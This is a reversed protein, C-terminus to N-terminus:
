WTVIKRVKRADLQAFIRDVSASEVALWHLRKTLDVFRAEIISKRRLHSRVVMVVWDGINKCVAARANLTKIKEFSQKVKIELELFNGNTKKESPALGSEIMGMRKQLELHVKQEEEKMEQYHNMRKLRKWDNAIWTNSAARLFQLVQLYQMFIDHFLKTRDNIRRQMQEYSSRRTAEIKLSVIETETRVVQLQRKKKRKKKNTGALAKSAPMKFGHRQLVSRNNFGRWNYQIRLAAETAVRQTEIAKELLNQCRKQSIYKRAKRGRIISAIVTVAMHRDEGEDAAREAAIM